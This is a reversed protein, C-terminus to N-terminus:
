SGDTAAPESTPEAPVAPQTHYGTAATILEEDTKIPGNGNSNHCGRCSFDLGLQPNATTGDESFQAIQSADISVMHTRVDGMFMGANAVANQILYPMHCDVCDVGLRTHIAVNQVKAQDFHCNQCEAQTTAENAQELQVVGSHPDHCVVCDVVAHKGPFLDGYSDLHSIFGDAIVLDQGAERSHCATCAGSTRDVKMEYSMPHNAHASGAGHCEECQVGELAWTGVIGPLGDQNGSPTYGTTHCSGCDFSKEEGAHFAVWDNGAQLRENPLNYQTTAAEDGTIIYGNADVFLARWNYGGIVYSIQDWSYGDPPGSLNSFPFSPERGDIVQTLPHNHGSNMFQDHLDGHCEACAESGVFTPPEYSLGDAGAPGPPGPPGERGDPGPPGQPGDAGPPGQPGEAGACGVILLGLILLLTILWPKHMM